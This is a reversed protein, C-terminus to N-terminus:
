EGIQCEVSIGTKNIKVIKKKIPRAIFIGTHEERAGVIDGIDYESDESSEFDIDCSEADEWAEELKERGGKELEETSEANSCDYVITVENEGTQTKSRSINGATDCYLHIIERDKLDGKGLCVVHNAPRQNQEVVFDFQSSDFEEDNSYDVLPVASLIVKKDSFQMKLKGGNAYLMKRIGTYAGIYRNMQYKKITIESKVSSAQFIGELGCREIITELVKNGEGNLILYDAGTDPELIHGELVGHWTRGLYVLKDNETDVRKGDIIGGYETGEIYLVSSVPCCDNNLDVECEFDNEDEGYALDLTYDELVNVDTRKKDTYILDM